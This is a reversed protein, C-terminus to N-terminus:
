RETGIADPPLTTALAHELAVVQQELAELKARTRALVREQVNFEERTVLDMKTLGDRLAAQLHVGLEDSFAGIGPPLTEQLFSLIRQALQDSNQM